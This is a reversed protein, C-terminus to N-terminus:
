WDQTWGILARIRDTIYPSQLRHSFDSVEQCSGYLIWRVVFRTALHQQSRRKCANAEAIGAHVQGVAHRIRNCAHDAVKPGGAVIHVVRDHWMAHRDNQISRSNKSKGPGSTRLSVQLSCFYEASVHRTSASGVSSLDQGITQRLEHHLKTHGIAERSNAVCRRINGGENLTGQRLM